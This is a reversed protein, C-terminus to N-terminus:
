HRKRRHGGRGCGDVQINNREGQDEGVLGHIGIGDTGSDAMALLHFFLCRVAGLGWFLPWSNSLPGSTNLSQYWVSMYPSKVALPIAAPFLTQIAGQARVLSWLGSLILLSWLTSPLM